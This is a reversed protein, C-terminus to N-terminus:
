ASVRRVAEEEGPGEGIVTLLGVISLIARARDPVQALCMKGGANTVSTYGAALIGVGASTVAEVGELHIVVRTHGKRVREQLQDLFAYAEPSSTFTGSLHYVTVPVTGHEVWKVELKKWNTM